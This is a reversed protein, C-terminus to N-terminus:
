SQEGEEDSSNTDDNSDEVMVGNVTALSEALPDDGDPIEYDEMEIGVSEVLYSGNPCSILHFTEEMASVAKLFDEEKTDELLTLRLRGSNQRCVVDVEDMESFQQQLANMTKVEGSNLMSAGDVMYGTKDLSNGPRILVEQLNDSVAEEIRATPGTNRIAKVKESISMLRRRRRIPVNHVTVKGNDPTYEYSEDEAMHSVLNRSSACNAVLDVMDISEFSVHEDLEEGAVVLSECLANMLSRGEVPIEYM